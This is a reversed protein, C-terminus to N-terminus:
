ENADESSQNDPESRGDDRETSLNAPETSLSVPLKIKKFGKKERKTFYTKLLPKDFVVLMSPIVLIVSLISIIVGKGLCTGLTAILPNKVIAGILFAAAVLITGSTVITPFAANVAEAIATKADMSKRFDVYRGTTVIAYDITAGMQIASVILYVFFYVNTGSLAFLAFNIFIAGQITLVLPIPVGWSRNTLMLIIFVFLITLLSVKINDGVFSRNLDYSSMSDGAFIAQPCYGKVEILLRDILAFTEKSEVAGNINFLLRSYNKGILQKEADQVTERLDEYTELSDADNYLYATIFDDHSFACDCMELLSATYINKNASYLAIEELGGKTDEQSFFAYALYIEDAVGEDVALLKAFEKYNIQQTLLVKQANLTLEVNAIGLADDIEDHAEVMDLIKGQQEYDNGPVLIVFQNSAGFVKETERLAVQTESPRSTDISNMSYCYDVQFSYYTGVSVIAVFLALIVYRCKVVTRAVPRVSPVFNRHRTRQIPKNFLLIVAPMFLFVTLMSCLISKALVLGLDAGLRLAMTTLAILGAITTLSSGCIEPIAKSLAEIVANYADGHLRENEETFRHCLIIAYDIALALQLIVCVSNSVFSITGFFFNTGMNMLAAVMFVILYVGVEAFSKSSFILVVIIIAVVLVLVFNIDNQLDEAMTDLLSVSVLSDYSSLREVIKEYAAVSVPDSDDGEFTIKFLACSDKYYDSTSNFTFSKVGEYEEIEDHLSKAEAYPVNRLMITATGYTVFEDDMIELAMKTDTSDPLYSTIDYEIKVQTTGWICFAMIGVFALIIWKRKDVIFKALKKM